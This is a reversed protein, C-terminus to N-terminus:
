RRAARLKAVEATMWTAGLINQGGGCRVLYPKGSVSSSTAASAIFEETTMAPRVRLLYEYKKALHQRAATGSHWEGNRQFNCGSGSIRDLLAQIEVATSTSVQAQALGGFLAGAVLVVLSPACADRNM